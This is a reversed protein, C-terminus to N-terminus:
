STGEILTMNKRILPKILVQNSIMSKLANDLLSKFHKNTMQDNPQCVMTTHSPLCVIIINSKAATFLANLNLHSLHGDLLLVLPLSVDINQKTYWQQKFLIFLNVWTQFTIEDQFGSDNSDCTSTTTGVLLHKDASKQFLFHPPIQHGNASTCLTLTIHIDCKVSEKNLYQRSTIFRINRDALQIGVEDVNWVRRPDRNVKELCLNTVRTFHVFRDVENVVRERGVDSTRSKREFLSFEHILRRATKKSVKVNDPDSRYYSSIRKIWEVVESIPMVTHLATELSLLFIKLECKETESLIPPRGIQAEGKKLFMTFTTYNVNFLHCCNSISDNTRVLHAKAAELRRQLDDRKEDFDM